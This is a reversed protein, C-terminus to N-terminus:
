GKRDVPKGYRMGTGPGENRRQYSLKFCDLKWIWTQQEKVAETNNSSGIQM